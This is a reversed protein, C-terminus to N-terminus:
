YSTNVPRVLCAAIVWCPCLLSRRLRLLLPLSVQGHLKREWWGMSPCISLVLQKLGSRGSRYVTATPPVRGCALPTDLFLINLFIKELRPWLLSSFLFYTSASSFDTKSTLGNILIHQVTTAFHLVLLSIQSHLRDWAFNIPFTVSLRHNKPAFGLIMSYTPTLVCVSLPHPCARM